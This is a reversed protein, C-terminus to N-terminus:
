NEDWIKDKGDIRIIIKRKSPNGVRNDRYYRSRYFNFTAPKIGLRECIEVKTGEFLYKEGKYVAYVWPHRSKSYSRGM